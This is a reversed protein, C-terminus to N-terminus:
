LDCIGCTQLQRKGKRALVRAGSEQCNATSGQFGRCSRPQATSEAHTGHYTNRAPTHARVLSGHRATTMRIEVDASPESSPFMIVTPDPRVNAPAAATANMPMTLTASAWPPACCCSDDGAGSSASCANLFM